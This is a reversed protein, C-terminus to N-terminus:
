LLTVLMLWCAMGTLVPVGMLYVMNRVHVM